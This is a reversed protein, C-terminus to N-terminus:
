ATESTCLTCYACHLDNDDIQGFALTNVRIPTRGLKALPSLPTTRSKYAEPLELQQHITSTTFVVDADLDRMAPLVLERDLGHRRESQWGLKISMGWGADRGGGGLSPAYFPHAGARLSCVFKPGWGQTKTSRELWSVRRELAFYNQETGAMVRAARTTKRAQRTTSAWAFGCPVFVQVLIHLLSPVQAFRVLWYDATICPLYQVSYLLSSFLLKWAKSLSNQKVNKIYNRIQCALPHQGSRQM